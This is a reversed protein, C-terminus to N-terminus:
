IRKMFIDHPGVLFFGHKIARSKIAEIQTECKVLKIKKTKAVDLLANTIADLAADRREKDSAPNSVYCDIVAVAADTLYLFGAAIEDVIFGTPPFISDCQLDHGRLKSWHKIQALDVPQVKRVLARARPYSTSAM